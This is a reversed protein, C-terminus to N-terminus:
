LANRSLHNCSNGVLFLVDSWRNLDIPPSVALRPLTEFVRV